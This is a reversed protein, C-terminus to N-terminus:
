INPSLKQLKHSKICTETVHGYEYSCVTLADNTLDKLVSRSPLQSGSNGSTGMNGLEKWLGNERVGEHGKEREAIIYTQYSITFNWYPDMIYKCIKARTWYSDM